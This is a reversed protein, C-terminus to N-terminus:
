RFASGYVTGGTSTTRGATSPGSWSATASRSSNCTPCTSTSGYTSASSTRAAGSNCTPCYSSSSNITKGCTSCYYSDGSRGAYSSYAQATKATGQGCTPCTSSALRTTASGYTTGTGTISLPM